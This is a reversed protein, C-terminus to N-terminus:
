ERGIDSRTLGYKILMEDVFRELREAQSRGIRGRTKIMKSVRYMFYLIVVGILLTTYAFLTNDVFYAIFSIILTFLFAKIIYNFSKSQTQNYDDLLIREYYLFMQTLYYNIEKFEKRAIRNYILNEYYDTM